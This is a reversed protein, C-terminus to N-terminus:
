DIVVMRRTATFGGCQLTYYLVGSSQGLDGRNFRLEHLGESYYGTFERVLRGNVDHISLRIDSAAPLEFRMRTERDFPNPTNQHLVPTANKQTTDEFELLLAVPDLNESLAFCHLVDDDLGLVESLMRGGRVAKFRLTFVETGKSLSRKEADAWLSRIDGQDTQYLGFNV